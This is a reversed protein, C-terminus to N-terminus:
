LFKAATGCDAEKIEVFLDSGSSGVSVGAGLASDSGRARRGVLCDTDM